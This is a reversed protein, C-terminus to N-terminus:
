QQKNYSANFKSLIWKIIYDYFGAVAFFSVILFQWDPKALMFWIAGLFLGWMSSYALKQKKTANPNFYYITIWTAIVASLVYPIVSFQILFEIM